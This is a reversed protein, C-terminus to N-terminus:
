NHKMAKSQRTRVEKQHAAMAARQKRDMMVSNFIQARDLSNRTVRVKSVKITVSKAAAYRQAQLRMRLISAQTLKQTIQDLTIERREVQQLRKAVDPCSSQKHSVEIEFSIPQRLPTRLGVVAQHQRVSLM